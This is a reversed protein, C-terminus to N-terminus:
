PHWTLGLMLRGHNFGIGEEFDEEQGDFEFTTFSGTTFSLAGDFALNRTFFYQLGGGLTLAGGSTAVEVGEAEDGMVVATLATNLYPRLKQYESGFNIRLGLDLTVVDFRGDDLDVLDGEDYEISAADLNLYLVTRDTFGYGLGVGLGGGSQLEADDTTGGVSSGSVHVNLMLGRNDSQASAGQASLLAGIALTSLVIAKKM